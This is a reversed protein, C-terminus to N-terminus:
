AGSSKLRAATVKDWAADDRVSAVRRVEAWYAADREIEADSRTDSDFPCERDLSRYGNALIAAM